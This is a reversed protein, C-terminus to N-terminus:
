ETDKNDHGSLHSPLDIAVLGIRTGGDHAEVGVIHQHLPSGARLELNDDTSLTKKLTISGKHVEESTSYSSDSDNCTLGQSTRTPTGITSHGQCQIADGYRATLDKRYFALVKDASDPTQFTAARVGLHFSGFNMNVIASNGDNNDSDAVPVAGPYPALGIASTDATNNTHVKMSGFPTGIDVNQRDGHGSETVHCGTLLLCALPGTLALTMLIRLTRSM